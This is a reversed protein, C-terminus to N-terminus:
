DKQKKGSGYDRSDVDSLCRRLFNARDDGRLNKDNARQYCNRENGYRKDDYKYGVGRSECWEVYDKRDQGKMNKDNARQNCESTVQGKNQPGDDSKKARGKGDEGLDDYRYDQAQEQGKGKGQGQGKDNGAYAAGMALVAALVVITWRKMTFEGATIHRL